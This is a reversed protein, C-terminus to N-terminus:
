RCYVVIPNLDNTTIRIFVFQNDGIHLTSSDVIDDFLIQYYKVGQSSTFTNISLNSILEYGLYTKNVDYFYIGNADLSGNHKFVMSERYASVNILKGVESHSTSELTAVAGSSNIESHPFEVEFLNETYNKFGQERYIKTEIQKAYKAIEFITVKNDDNPTIVIRAYKAFFPISDQTFTGTLRGTTHVFVNDQDYFYIQYSITNDFVPTVNLGQCSFADKTYLSQDTSMYNGNSDLGGVRYHTWGYSTYTLADEIKDTNRTLAVVGGVVGGVVVLCLLITVLNRLWKRGRFFHKFKSM